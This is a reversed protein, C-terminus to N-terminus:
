SVLNHELYDIIRISSKQDGFEDFYKLIKNNNTKINKLDSISSFPILYKDLDNQINQNRKNITNIYKKGIFKQFDKFDNFGLIQQWFNFDIENFYKSYSNINIKEKEEPLIIIKKNYVLAYYLLSTFYTIVYESIKLLDLYEQHSKILKITTGKIIDNDFDSSFESIEQPHPKYYLKYNKFKPIITNCIKEFLLKRYDKDKLGHIIVIKENKLDSTDINDYKPNGMVISKNAYWGSNIKTKKGWECHDFFLDICNTPFSKRSAIELKTKIDAITYTGTEIGVIFTGKTKFEYAITKEPEWNENSILLYDPKFPLTLSLTQFSYGKSKDYLDFHMINTDYSFQDLQNQPSLRQNSQSYLFYYPLNRNKLEKVINVLDLYSREDSAFIFYSKM